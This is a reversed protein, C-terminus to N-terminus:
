IDYSFQKSVREGFFILNHLLQKKALTTTPNFTAELGNDIEHSNVFKTLSMKGYTIVEDTPLIEDLYDILVTNNQPKSLDTDAKIRMVLVRNNENVTWFMTQKENLGDNSKLLFDVTTIKNIPDISIKGSEITANKHATKTRPNVYVKTTLKM